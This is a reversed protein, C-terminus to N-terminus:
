RIGYQAGTYGDRQGDILRNGVQMVHRGGNGQHTRGHTDTWPAADREITKYAQYDDEAGDAPQLM